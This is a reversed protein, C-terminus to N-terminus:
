AVNIVFITVIAAIVFSMKHAILIKVVNYKQVNKQQIVRIDMKASVHPIGYNSLAFHKIAAYLIAVHIPVNTTFVHKTQIVNPM